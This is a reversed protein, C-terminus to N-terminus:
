LIAENTEAIIERLADRIPTRSQVISIRSRVDSYPHFTLDRNGFFIAKPM